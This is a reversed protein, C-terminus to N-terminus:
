APRVFGQALQGIEYAATGSTVHVIITEGPTMTFATTISPAAGCTLSQPANQSVACAIGSPITSGSADLSWDLGLANPLSDSLTM